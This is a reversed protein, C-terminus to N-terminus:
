VIFSIISSPPHAHANKFRTVNNFKGDSDFFVPGIKVPEGNLDGLIFARFVEKLLEGIRLDM